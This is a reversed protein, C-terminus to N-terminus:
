PAACATRRGARRGASMAFARPSPLCALTSSSPRPRRRGSRSPAPVGPAVDEHRVGEELAAGGEVALQELVRARQHAGRRLALLRVLRAQRFEGLRPQRGDRLAQRRCASRDRIELAQPQREAELAHALPEARVVRDHALDEALVRRVRERLASTRCLVSPLAAARMASYSPPWAAIAALWSGMIRRAAATSGAARASRLVKSVSTSPGTARPWSSIAFARKAFYPVCCRGPRSM